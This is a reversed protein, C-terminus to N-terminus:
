GLGCPVGAVGAVPDGGAVALDAFYTQPHLDGNTVAASCGVSAEARSCSMKATTPLPHILLKADSNSRAAARVPYLPMVVVSLLQITLVPISVNM